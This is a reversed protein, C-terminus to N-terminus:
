KVTVTLPVGGPGKPQVASCGYANQGFLAVNYTGPLLPLFFWIGGADTGTVKRSFPEGNVLVHLDTLDSKSAAQFYLTAKSGGGGSGTLQFKTIAISVAEGGIPPQCKPDPPVGQLVASVENSNPSSEQLAPQGPFKVLARVVLYYTGPGPLTVDATIVKGPVPVINPYVGPTTGWAIEYDTPQTDTPLANDWALTVVAAGAATVHVELPAPGTLILVLSVLLAALM